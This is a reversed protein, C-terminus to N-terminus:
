FMNVKSTAGLILVVDSTSIFVVINLISPMFQLAQASVILRRSSFSGPTRM